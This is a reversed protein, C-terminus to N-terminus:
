QIINEFIRVFQKAQEKRSYNQLVESRISSTTFGKEKWEEPLRVKVRLWLYRDRGRWIGGKKLTEETGTWVPLQPNVLGSLDEQIELEQFELKRDYRYKLLECIRKALKEEAFLM